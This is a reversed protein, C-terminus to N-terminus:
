YFFFFFKYKEQIFLPVKQNITLKLKNMTDEIKKKKKQLKHIESNFEVIGKLNIFLKCFSNILYVVSGKKFIM